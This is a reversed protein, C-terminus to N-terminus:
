TNIQVLTIFVLLVQLNITTIAEAVLCRHQGDIPDVIEGTVPKPESTGIQRLISQQIRRKQFSCPSLNNNSQYMPQLIPM